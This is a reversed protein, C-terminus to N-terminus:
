YLGRQPCILQPHLGRDSSGRYSLLLVSAETTTYCTVPFSYFIMYIYSGTSEGTYLRISRNKSQM